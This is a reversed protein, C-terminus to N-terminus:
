GACLFQGNNWFLFATFSIHSVWLGFYKGKDQRYTLVYLSWQVIHGCARQFTPPMKWIQQLHSSKNRLMNAM